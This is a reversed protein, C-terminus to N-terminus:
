VGKEFARTSILATTELTSWSQKLIHCVKAPLQASCEAVSGAPISFILEENQPLILQGGFTAVTDCCTVLLEKFLSESLTELWYKTVDAPAIHRVIPADGWPTASIQKAELFRLRKLEPYADYFAKYIAPLSQPVGDELGFQACAKLVSGKSIIAYAIQESLEQMAEGGTYALPLELLEGFINPLNDWVRHQYKFSSQLAKCGTMASVMRLKVDNLQLHLYIRNPESHLQLQKLLGVDPLSEGRWYTEWDRLNLLDQNSQNIWDVNTQIDAALVKRKSELLYRLGTRVPGQLRFDLRALESKKAYQAQIYRGNCIQSTILTPVSQLYPLLGLDHKVERHVFPFTAMFENAKKENAGTLRTSPNWKLLARLTAWPAMKEDFNIMTKPM